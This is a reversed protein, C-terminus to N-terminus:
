QPEKDLRKVAVGYWPHDADRLCLYTVPGHRSVYFQDMM